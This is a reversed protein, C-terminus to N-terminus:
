MIDASAPPASAATQPKLTQLLENHQRLEDRINRLLSTVDGDSSAINNLDLGRDLVEVSAPMASSMASNRKMAYILKKFAQPNQLGTITLEHRGDSSGATDINILHLKNEICFCTSGAPDVTDCFTIKDFPITKTTKGADTCPYGWCTSRKEQVFKVGDRTIAVHQSRVSWNVNDNLICPAGFLTALWFINPVCITAVYCAWGLKSYHTVMQDYDLDFVAVVDDDDDFYEDTWTVGRTEPIQAYAAGVRRIDPRDLEVVTAPISSPAATSDDGQPVVVYAKAFVPTATDTQGM